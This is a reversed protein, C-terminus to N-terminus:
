KDYLNCWLYDALWNIFIKVRRTGDFQIHFFFNCVHLFLGLLNDRSIKIRWFHHFFLLFWLGSIFIFYVFLYFWLLTYFYIFIFVFFLLFFIYFLAPLLLDSSPQQCDISKQLFAGKENARICGRKCYWVAINEILSEQYLLELFPNTTNEDLWVLSAM